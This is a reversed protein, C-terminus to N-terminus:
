IEEKGLANLPDSIHTRHHNLHYRDHCHLYRASNLNHTRSDIWGVMRVANTFLRNLGKSLGDLGGM